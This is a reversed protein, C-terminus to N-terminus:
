ISPLVLDTATDVNGNRYSYGGSYPNSFNQSFYFNGSGTLRELELFYQTGQNVNLNSFNATFNTTASFGSTCSPLQFDSIATALLTTKSPSSYIRVRATTQQSSSYCTLPINTISNLTGSQGSPITFTQGWFSASNGAQGSLTTSFSYSVGFATMVSHNSILIWCLITILARRRNM